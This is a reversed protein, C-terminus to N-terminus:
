SVLTSYGMARRLEDLVEIENEPFIIAAFSLKNFQEVYHRQNPQVPADASAKVELMFWRDGFLILIDPIGQTQQPDSRTIFCGPFMVKLKNVLERQYVRESKPM